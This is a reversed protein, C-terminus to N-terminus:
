LVDVVDRYPALRDDTPDLETVLVDVLEWDLGVAVARQGLKSSDAALVVHEAATALSRKVEAEDLTAELGGSAPDVAAASAFLRQLALQGASRSALPGVLSGTRPELRGGTLLPTVAPQGQLTPRTSRIANPLWTTSTWTRVTRSRSARMGAAM